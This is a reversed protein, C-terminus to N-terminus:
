HFWERAVLDRRPMHDARRSLSEHGEPLDQWQGSIGAPVLHRGYCGESVAGCIAIDDAICLDDHGSDGGARSLLIGSWPIAERLTETEMALCRGKIVDVPTPIRVNRVATHDRYRGRLLAGIPGVIRGPRCHAVLDHIATPGVPLIDDDLILVHSTTAQAALWWRPPCLVNRNSNVLWDVRDLLPGDLQEGNAWLWVRVPPEQLFLSRLIVSLQTHRRHTVMCVTTTPKTTM